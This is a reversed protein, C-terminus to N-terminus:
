PIYIGNISFSFGSYTQVTDIKGLGSTRLGDKFPAGWGQNTENFIYNIIELM